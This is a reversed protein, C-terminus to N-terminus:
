LLADLSFSCCRAGVLPLVIRRVFCVCVAHATLLRVMDRFVREQDANNPHDTTNPDNTCSWYCYDYTFTHADQEKVPKHLSDPRVISTNAGNMRIICKANRSLERGNFPRVRVAVQVAQAAAKEDSM